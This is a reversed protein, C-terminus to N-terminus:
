HIIIVAVINDRIDLLLWMFVIFAYLYYIYNIIIYKYRYYIYNYVSCYYFLNSIRSRQVDNSLM